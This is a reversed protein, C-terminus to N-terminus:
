QYINGLLSEIHVQHTKGRITYTVISEIKRIHEWSWPLDNVTSLRIIRSYPTINGEEWAARQHTYREAEYANGIIEKYSLIKKQEPSVVREFTYEKTPSTFVIFDQTQENPWLWLTECIGDTNVRACDRPLWREQNINRKHFVLEIGEKALLTATNKLRIEEIWFINHTMSQM